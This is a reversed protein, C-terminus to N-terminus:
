GMCNNIRVWRCAGWGVRSSGAVAEGHALATSDAGVLATPHGTRPLEFRTALRSGSFSTWFDIFKSGKTRRRPLKGSMWHFLEIEAMRPGSFDRFGRSDAMGTVCRRSRSRMRVTGPVGRCSSLRRRAWGAGRGHLGGPVLRLIRLFDINVANALDQALESTGRLHPPPSSSASTASSRFM